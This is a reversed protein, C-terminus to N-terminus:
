LRRIKVDFASFTDHLEVCLRSLKSFEHELAVLGGGRVSTSNKLASSLKAYQVNVQALNGAAKERLEHVPYRNLWLEHVVTPLWEKTKSDCRNLPPQDFFRKPSLESEVSDILWRAESEHASWEPLHERVFRSLKEADPNDSRLRELFANLRNLFQNKLWDHNFESRREQWENLM